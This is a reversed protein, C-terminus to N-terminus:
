AVATGGRKERDKLFVYSVERWRDLGLEAGDGWPGTGKDECHDDGCEGIVELVAEDEGEDGNRNTDGAEGDEEADVVVRM